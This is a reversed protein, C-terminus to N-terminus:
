VESINGKKYETYLALLSPRDKALSKRHNVIMEPNVMYTKSDIKVMFENYFLRSLLKYYSPKSINARTYIYKNDVGRVINLKDMSKVLWYVVSMDKPNSVSQAIAMMFEDNIKFNFNDGAFYLKDTDM